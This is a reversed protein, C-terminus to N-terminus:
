PKRTLGAFVRQAIRLMAALAGVAALALTSPEPVPVGSVAFIGTYPGHNPVGPQDSVTGGVFTFSVIPKLNLNLAVLDLDTEYMGFSVPKNYVFATGASSNSNRGLGGIAVHSAGTGWDFANYSLPASHTGDQFDIVVTGTGNSAANYGSALIALNSFAHPTVVSLTGTNGSPYRMLMTNSGNFPQLGFLTHGGSVSNTLSSTFSGAPMGDNHITGGDDAAGKEFWDATGIDTPTAFRVATNADTVVDTNYGSLSIPTPTQAKASDTLMVGYACVLASCLGVSHRFNGANM